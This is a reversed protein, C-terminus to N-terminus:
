KIHQLLLRHQLLRLQNMFLDNTIVRIYSSMIDKYQKEFNLLAQSPGHLKFQEYIQSNWNYMTEILSLVKTNQELRVLTNSSPMKHLFQKMTKEFRRHISESTMRINKFEDESMLIGPRINLSSTKGILECLALRADVNPRLSFQM